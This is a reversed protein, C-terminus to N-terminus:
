SMIVLLHNDGTKRFRIYRHENVEYVVHYRADAKQPFKLSLASPIFAIAQREMMFPGLLNM